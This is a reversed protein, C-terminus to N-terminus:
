FLHHARISKVWDRHPCWRLPWVRKANGSALNSLTRRGRWRTVILITGGTCFLGLAGAILAFRGRADQDCLPLVQMGFETLWFYTWTLKLIEM